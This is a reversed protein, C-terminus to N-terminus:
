ADDDTDPRFDILPLDVATGSEASRAVAETFEMYAVGTAFDTFRVPAGSRISEVWEAEVRWGKNPDDPLSITKWTKKGAQLDSASLSVLEDKELDYILAGDSGYMRISMGGGVPCVGSFQYVARVGNPLQTIVQVSDPTGV